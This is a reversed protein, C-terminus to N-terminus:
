NRQGPVCGLRSILIAYAFTELSRRAEVRLMKILGDHHAYCCTLGSLGDDM